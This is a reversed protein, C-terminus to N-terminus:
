DTCAGDCTITTRQYSSDCADVTDTTAYLSYEVTNDGDGGITVIRTGGAAGCASWLNDYATVIHELACTGLDTTTETEVIARATCSYQDDDGCVMDDATYCFGPYGTNGQASSIETAMFHFQSESIDRYGDTGAVNCGTSVETYTCSRARLPVATGLSLGIANAMLLGAYIKM